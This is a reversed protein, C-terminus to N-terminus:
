PSPSAQDRVLAALRRIHDPTRKVLAELHEVSASGTAPWHLLWEALPRALTEEFLERQRTRAKEKAREVYQKGFIEVLEQTFAAVLPVLVLDMVFHAGLFAVTGIISGLELAFKTGRLANLASPSKELDEYISRATQEVEALMRTQFQKLREALEKDGRPILDPELQTKLQEWIPHGSRVAAEKRFGDLWASFASRLVPEEPLNATPPAGAVQNIFGKVLRYPTRVVYLTKAVYQGVGPLELLEMLRLLSANFRPFQEGTLYEKAYRRVFGARGSEVLKRWESLAELDRRAPRLLAEEHKELFDVAGMVGRCRVQAARGTWWEAQELLPARFETLLHPERLQEPSLNPIALCAAVRTCEPIRAVVETRFHATLKAAQDARMKLLVTVVPKGAQLILRLFQTPIADNYREDSAAYVVVDALGIAEILRAAYHHAQWTTMDPCDWVVAASLLTKADAPPEVERVQFVDEDYSGPVAVRQLRLRGLREPGSTRPRPGQRLVYAIPHRTFGAQPNTEAVAQGILFNTVTSKGAGAGGVVVFQLPGGRDGRLFPGIHNTTLAEALRLQVLEEAPSRRELAYGELWSFDQALAAVLREAESAARDHPLAADM